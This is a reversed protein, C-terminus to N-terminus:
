YFCLSARSARVTLLRQPTWEGVCHLSICALSIITATPHQITSVSKSEHDYRIPIICVLTWNTQPPWLTMFHYRWHPSFVQGISAAHLSFPCLFDGRQLGNNIYKFGTQNTLWSRSHSQM